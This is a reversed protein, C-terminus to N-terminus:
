VVTMRAGPAHTLSPRLGPEPVPDPPDAPDPSTHWLITKEVCFGVKGEGALGQGGAAGRICKKLLIFAGAPNKFVLISNKLFIFAGAPM